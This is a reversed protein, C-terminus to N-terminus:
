HVKGARLAFTKKRFRLRDEETFTDDLAHSGITPPTSTTPEDVRCGTTKYDNESSKKPDSNDYITKERQQNQHNPSESM